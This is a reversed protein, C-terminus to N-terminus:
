WLVVLVGYMQDSIMDKRRVLHLFYERQSYHYKINNDILLATGYTHTHTNQTLASKLDDSLLMFVNGYLPNKDRIFNTVFIIHFSM